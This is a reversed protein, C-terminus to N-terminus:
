NGNSGGKEWHVDMHRQRQPLRSFESCGHPKGGLSQLGSLVEDMGVLHKSKAQLPQQSAFEEVVAKHLLQGDTGGNNWCALSETELFKVDVVHM